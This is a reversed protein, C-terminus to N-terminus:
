VIGSPLPLRRPVPWTPISLAIEDEWPLGHEAFLAKLRKMRKARNDRCHRSARKGRRGALPQAEPLEMMVSAAFIEERGKRLYLGIGEIGIDIGLVIASQYFPHALWRDRLTAVTPAPLLTYDM